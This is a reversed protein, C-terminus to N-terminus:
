GVEIGIGFLSLLQNLLIPIAGLDAPFLDCPLPLISLDNLYPSGSSGLDVFIAYGCTELHDGLIQRLASHQFFLQALRLLHLRYSAQCATDGM